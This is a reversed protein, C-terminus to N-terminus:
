GYPIRNSQDSLIKGSNWLDPSKLKKTTSAVRIQYATQKQGREVPKALNIWSLHPTKEDVVTPNDMYECSLKTLTLQAHLSLTIAILLITPILKM